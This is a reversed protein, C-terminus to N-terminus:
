AIWGRERMDLLMSRVGYAAFFALVVFAVEIM